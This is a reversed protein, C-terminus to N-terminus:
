RGKAWNPLLEEVQVMTRAQLNNLTQNQMHIANEINDMKLVLMYLLGAFVLLMVRSYLYGLNM